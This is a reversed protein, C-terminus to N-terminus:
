VSELENLNVRWINVSLYDSPFFNPRSGLFEIFLARAFLCFNSQHSDFYKSIASIDASYTTLKDSLFLNGEAVEFHETIFIRSENRKIFYLRPKFPASLWFANLDYFVHASSM